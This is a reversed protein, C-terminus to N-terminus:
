RAGIESEFWSFRVVARGPRRPTEPTGLAILFNGGPPLIFKGSEVDGIETHAPARRVFAKVGGTPDGETRSAEYFRIATRAPPCLATNGPTVAAAGSPRGPPDANFWIQARLPTDGTNAVNWAYVHLDVGSRPPNCLAAWANAGEGFCLEHSVGLFYDGRLSLYLAYPMGAMQTVPNFLRIADPHTLGYGNM